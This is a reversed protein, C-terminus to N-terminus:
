HGKKAPKIWEGARQLDEGAGSVAGGLTGCASLFVPVLLIALFRMVLEKDPNFFFGVIHLTYV